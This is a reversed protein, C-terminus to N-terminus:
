IQIKIKMPFEVQYHNDGNILIMSSQFPIFNLNYEKMIPHPTEAERHKDFEKKLLDDVASNLAWGPM